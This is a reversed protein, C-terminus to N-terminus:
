MISELRVRHDEKPVDEPGPRRELRIHRREERAPDVLLQPVALREAAEEALDPIRQGRIALAHPSFGGYGDRYPRIELIRRFTAPM